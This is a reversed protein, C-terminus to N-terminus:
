ERVLALHEIRYEGAGPGPDFRLLGIAGKWTPHGSLVVRHTLAGADVPSLRASREEGFSAEPGAWYIQPPGGPGRVTAELATVQEAVLGPTPVSMWPDPVPSRLTLGVATLALEVGPAGPEWTTDVDAALGLSVGRFIVRCGLEEPLDVRLERLDGVHLFLAVVQRGARLNRSLSCRESFVPCETSTWFVQLRGPRDSEVDVRALSAVMPSALQWTFYPDKKEVFAVLDGDVIESRLHHRTRRPSSGQEPWLHLAALPPGSFDWSAVPGPESRPVDTVCGSLAGIAGVLAM